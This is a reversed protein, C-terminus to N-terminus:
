FQLFTVNNTQHEYEHSPFLQNLMQGVNKHLFSNLNFYSIRNQRKQKCCLALRKEIHNIKRYLCSLYSILIFPM